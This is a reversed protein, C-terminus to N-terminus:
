CDTNESDVDDRKSVRCDDIGGKRGEEDEQRKNDGRPGYYKHAPLNKM